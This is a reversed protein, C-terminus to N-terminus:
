DPTSFPFEFQRHFTFFDPDIYLICRWGLRNCLFLWSWDRKWGSEVSWGMQGKQIWKVGWGLRSCMCVSPIVWSRHSMRFGLWPWISDYCLSDSAASVFQGNEDLARVMFGGTKDSIVKMEYLGVQSSVAGLCLIHKPAIMKQYEKPNKDRSWDALKPRKNQVCLQFGSGILLCFYGSRLWLRRGRCPLVLDPFVFKSSPRGEFFFCFLGDWSRKCCVM